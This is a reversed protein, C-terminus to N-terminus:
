AVIVAHKAIFELEALRQKSVLVKDEIKEYVGIIIAEIDPPSLAAQELAERHDTAILDYGLPIQKLTSM